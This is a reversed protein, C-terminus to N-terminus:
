VKVGPTKRTRAAQRNWARDTNGESGKAGPGCRGCNGIFAFICGSTTIIGKGFWGRWQAGHGSACAQQPSQPHCQQTSPPLPWAESLKPRALLLWSVSLICLRTADLQTLNPELQTLNRELQTLNRELQWKERLLCMDGASVSNLLGQTCAYGGSAPWRNGSRDTLVTFARLQTQVHSAQVTQSVPEQLHM